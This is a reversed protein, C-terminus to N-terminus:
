CRSIIQKEPERVALYRGNKVEMEHAGSSAFFETVPKIRSPLSVTELLQVM